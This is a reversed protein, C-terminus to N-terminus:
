QGIISKILDRIVQGTPQPNTFEPTTATGTGAVGTQKKEQELIESGGSGAVRENNLYAAFGDDTYRGLWNIYGGCDGLTICIKNMDKAWEKVAEESIRGKKEDEESLYQCNGWSEDCEWDPDQEEEDWFKLPKETKEFKISLKSNGLSCQDSASFKSNSQVVGTGYSGENFKPTEANTSTTGTSTTSSATSKSATANTKTTTGTFTNAEQGWFETGPPYNPVCLGKPTIAGKKSNNNTKEIQGSQESLYYDEIWMCERADRNECDDQEKQQTCDQWRNVRCAAESYGSFSGQICIENRFDACPETIIENYLCVEKFYRSGVPDEGNGSPSDSVCWSEGHKKSQKKCNLSVCIYEGYTPRGLIRDAKKGISGLYYDCNGCTKSGANSQGYGCSEEKTFVRRWYEKDNYKSADYINALNGCTDTFYVEDKTEVIATKSSRACDTGLEEATCLIDKYFGSKIEFASTNSTFNDQSGLGSTQCKDRTIFRCTATGTETDEYVCAGKDAKQATAICTLEDAIDKKFNTDIGYFGSLQKCRTLTVFAGQDGIICCGLRCQPIDCEKNDAWTGENEECVRQPTSEMCLGENSDFCCGAKCYSTSDCATPSVKFGSDCQELPANQCLAGNTTKECCYNVEAASTLQLLLISLTIISALGLLAIRKMEKNELNDIKM